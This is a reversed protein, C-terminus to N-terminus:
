AFSFGYNIPGLYSTINEDKKRCREAKEKREEKKENSVEEPKM